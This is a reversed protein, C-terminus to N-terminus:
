ANEMVEKFLTRINKITDTELLYGALKGSRYIFMTSVPHTQFLHKAYWERGCLPEIVPLIVKTKAM